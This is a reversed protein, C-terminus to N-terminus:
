TDNRVRVKVIDCNIEYDTIRNIQDEFFYIKHLSKGHYMKLIEYLDKFIKINVTVEIGEFVKYKDNQVVKNLEM